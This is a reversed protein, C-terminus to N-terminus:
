EIQKFELTQYVVNLKNNINYKEKLLLIKVFVRNKLNSNEFILCKGQKGSVSSDINTIWTKGWNEETLIGNKKYKVVLIFNKSDTDIKLFKDDVYLPTREIWADEVIFPLSDSTNAIKYKRLLLKNQMAEVSSNSHYRKHNSDINELHKAIILLILTAILVFVYKKM